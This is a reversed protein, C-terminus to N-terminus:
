ILATPENTLAVPVLRTVSDTFGVRTPSAINKEIDNMLVAVTVPTDPPPQGVLPEPVGPAQRCIAPGKWAYEPDALTVSHIPVTLVAPEEVM